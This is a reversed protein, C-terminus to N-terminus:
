DADYVDAKGPRIGQVEGSLMMSRAQFRELNVDHDALLEMTAAHCARLFPTAVRIADDAMFRHGWPRTAWAHRLGFPEPLKVSGGLYNLLGQSWTFPARTALRVVEANTVIPLTITREEWFKGTKAVTKEPPAAKKTFLGHVPGLAHGTVEIRLTNHLVTVTAMLTIVLQGNWLVFQAGVYHRPGQGFTQKDALETVSFPRMRHGDMEPGSPRSIEDASEGIPLLVWNDVMVHPIGGKDVVSRGFQHLHEQIKRGV